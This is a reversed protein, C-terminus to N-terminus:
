RLHNKLSYGFGFGYNSLSWSSYGFDHGFGNSFGLATYKFIQGETRCVKPLRLQLQLYSVKPKPQLDEAKPLGSYPSSSPAKQQPSPFSGNMSLTTKVAFFRFM